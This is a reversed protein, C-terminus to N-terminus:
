AVVQNKQDNFTLTEDLWVGLDKLSFERIIQTQGFFYNFATTFVPRYNFFLPLM